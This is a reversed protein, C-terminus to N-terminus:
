QQRPNTGHPSKVHCNIRSSTTESTQLYPVALHYSPRFRHFLVLYLYHYFVYHLPLLCHYQCSEQHSHLHSLQCASHSTQLSPPPSHDVSRKQKSSWHSNSSRELLSKLHHLHADCDHNCLLGISLLSNIGSHDTSSM